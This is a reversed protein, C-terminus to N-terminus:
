VGGLHFYHFFRTSDDLRQGKLWFRQWGFRLSGVTVVVAVGVGVGVAIVVVSM